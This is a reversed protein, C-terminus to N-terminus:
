AGLSSQSRSKQHSHAPLLPRPTPHQARSRWRHEPDLVIRDHGVGNRAQEFYAAQPSADLSPHIENVRPLPHMVIMGPKGHGIISIDIHYTNRVREFELPDGFREQQIRTVYLVDVGKVAALM